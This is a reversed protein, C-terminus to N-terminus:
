YVQCNLESTISSGTEMGNPNTLSNTPKIEIMNIGIGLTHAAVQAVQMCDVTEFSYNNAKDSM